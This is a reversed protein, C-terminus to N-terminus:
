LFLYLQAACSGKILEKADEQANEVLVRAERRMKVIEEVEQVEHQQNSYLEGVERAIGIVEATTFEEEM